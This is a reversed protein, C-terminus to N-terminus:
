QPSASNHVTEYFCEHAYELLNSVNEEEILINYISISFLDGSLKIKTLNMNETNLVDNKLIHNLGSEFDINM